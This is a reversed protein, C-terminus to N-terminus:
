AGAVLHITFVANQCANAASADMTLADDMDIPLAGDVAGARPPVTWGSGANSQVTFRLSSLDCGSHAGDVDFGGTGAGTDLALSTVHVTYPNPNTAITSVSVDGGPFLLARATGPGLALALPDGVRTRANGSGAGTWYAVAGAAIALTIVVAVALGRTGIRLRRM